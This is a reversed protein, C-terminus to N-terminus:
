DRVNPTVEQVYKMIPIPTRKCVKKKSKDSKNFSSKSIQVLTKRNPCLCKGIPKLAKKNQKKPQQFSIDSIEATLPAVLSDMSKQNKALKETLEKITSNLSAMTRQKKNNLHALGELIADVDRLIDETKLRGWFSSILPDDAFPFLDPDKECSHNLSMGTNTTIQAVKPKKIQIPLPNHIVVKKNSNVSFRAMEVLTVRAKTSVYKGKKKIRVTSADKKVVNSKNIIHEKIPVYLKYGAVFSDTNQKELESKSLPLVQEVNSKSDVRKPADLVKQAILKEDLVLGPCPEIMTAHPALNKDIELERCALEQSKYEMSEISGLTCVASTLAQYVVVWGRKIPTYDNVPNSLDIKRPISFLFNQDLNDSTGFAQYVQRLIALEQDQAKPLVPMRLALASYVVMQSEESLKPKPHKNTYGLSLVAFAILAIVGLEYMADRNSNIQVYRAWADSETEQITQVSEAVEIEMEVIEQSVKILITAKFEEITEKNKRSITNLTEVKKMVMQMMSTLAVYAFFSFIFNM